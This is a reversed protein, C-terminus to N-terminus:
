GANAYTIGNRLATSDYVAPEVREGVEKARWIDNAFNIFDKNQVPPWYDLAISATVMARRTGVLLRSASSM